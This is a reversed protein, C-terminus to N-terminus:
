KIDNKLIFCVSIVNGGTLGVHDKLRWWGRRRRLFFLFLFISSPLFGHSM